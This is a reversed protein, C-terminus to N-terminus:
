AAGTEEILEGIAEDTNENRWTEGSPIVQINLWKKSVDIGVNTKLLIEAM